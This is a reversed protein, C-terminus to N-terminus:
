LLLGNTIRPEFPALERAQVSCVSLNPPRLHASSIGTGAEGKGVTVDEVDDDVEFTVVVQVDGLGHEVLCARAPAFPAHPIGFQDVQVIALPRFQVREPHHVVRSLLQCVADQSAGYEATKLQHSPWFELTGTEQQVLALAAGYRVPHLTEREDQLAARHAVELLRHVQDGFLGRVVLHSLRVDVSEELLTGCEVQQSASLGCYISPYPYLNELTLTWPPSSEDRSQLVVRTEPVTAPHCWLFERCLTGPPIPRPADTVVFVRLMPQTCRQLRYAACASREACLAGGPSPSCEDNTGWVETGDDLLLCAVVRFHSQPPPELSERLQHAKRLYYEDQQLVVPEKHLIRRRLRWETVAFAFVSLSFLFFSEAAM